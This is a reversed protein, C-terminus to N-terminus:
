WQIGRGKWKLTALEAAHDIEEMVQRGLLVGHSFRKVSEGNPLQWFSGFKRSSILSTSDVSAWPYRGIIRRDTQGWGHVKIPWTPAHRIRTWAWDLWEIREPVSRGVLGGLGIYTAGADLIRDLEAADSGVHFTPVAATLGAARMTEWNRFSAAPDGIVDM